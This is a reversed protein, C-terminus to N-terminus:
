ETDLLDGEGFAEFDTLESNSRYMAEARAAAAALVRDRIEPPAALLARPDQAVEALELLTEYLEWPLLALVPRGNETLRAADPVGTTTLQDRLEDLRRSAEALPMTIM